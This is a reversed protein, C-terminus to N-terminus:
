GVRVASEQIQQVGHRASATRRQEDVDRFGTPRMRPASQRDRNVRTVRTDPTVPWGYGYGGTRVASRADQERAVAQRGSLCAKVVIEARLVALYFPCTFLM